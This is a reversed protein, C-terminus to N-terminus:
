GRAFLNVSAIRRMPYEDYALSGRWTEHAEASVFYTDPDGELRAVAEHLATAEIGSAAAIRNLRARHEEAGWGVLVHDVAHVCVGGTPAVLERAARAVDEAAPGLHELVSISYVGDAPELAEAPPFRERIFSLDPYARRFSRYSRPGNGSGDYPDVVTVRYGLRALTGAVLPEGAGIEVLRGGPEVSGLIAKLAWSRQLNKMDPNAKALAGLAERSEAWDRVTCYSVPPPDFRGRWREEVRWLERDPLLSRSRNESMGAPVPTDAAGVDRHRAVRVLEAVRARVQRLRTRTTM